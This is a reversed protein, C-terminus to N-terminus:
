QTQIVLHSGSAQISQTINSPKKRTHRDRNPSARACCPRVSRRHTGLQLSHKHPTMLKQPCLKGDDDIVGARMTQVGLFPGLEGWEYSQTINCCESAAVFDNWQQGDTIIRAEM